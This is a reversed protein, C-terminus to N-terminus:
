AEVEQIRPAVGLLEAAQEVAAIRREYEDPSLLFSVLMKTGKEEEGSFQPEPDPDLQALLGDLEDEGFGTVTLDAGDERLGRLVMALMQDDWAGDIRNLALNLLREDGQDLDVVSVQVETAGQDRLVSLRQHGGVLNGTRRNWVLPEVLGFADLSRRISEYAPDGAKLRRRPNYAAPNVREIPVREIEM